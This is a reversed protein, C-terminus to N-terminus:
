KIPVQTLPIDDNHRQKVTNTNLEIYQSVVKHAHMQLIQFATEHRNAQRYTEKPYMM